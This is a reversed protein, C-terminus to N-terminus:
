VQCFFGKGGDYEFDEELLLVEKWIEPIGCLSHALIISIKLLKLIKVELLYLFHEDEFFVIRNIV